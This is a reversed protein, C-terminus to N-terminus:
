PQTVGTGEKLPCDKAWSTTCEGRTPDHSQDWPTGWITIRSATVRKAETVSHLYATIGYDGDSRLKTNIYIPAAQVEFGLQAPMGKPPILNYIPVSIFFSNGELQQIIAVGVM